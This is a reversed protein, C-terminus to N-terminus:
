RSLQALLASQLLSQFFSEEPREEEVTFSTYKEMREHVPATDQRSLLYAYGLLLAIILVLVCILFGLM